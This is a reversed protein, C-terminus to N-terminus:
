HICFSGNEQLLAFFSVENENCITRLAEKHHKNIKINATWKQGDMGFSLMIFDYEFINKFTAVKKLIIIYIGVLTLTQIAEMLFCSCVLLLLIATLILNKM